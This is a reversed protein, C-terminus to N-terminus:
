SICILVSVMHKAQNVRCDSTWGTRENGCKVFRKSLKNERGANSEMMRCRQVHLCLNVTIFNSMKARKYHSSHCQGLLSSVTSCKRNWQGSYSLM